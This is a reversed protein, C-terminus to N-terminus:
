AALLRELAEPEDLSAVEVGPAIARVLGALVRGPGVEVFRSVGAAVMAEVSEVWRVPSDLQEVLLEVVRAADSNPAAEVNSPVRLPGIPLGALVERMPPKVRAMLSCHFPASVPLPLVRRAGAATLLPRAREIAELHGAIVTQDPSNFNAPTCVQGQAADACLEAVKGPALRLVAAMTGLGAPVAQQMLEGRRQVARVADCFRLAGAAVLASYEGLSHGAMLDPRQERSALAAHMALSVTLIAPQTNRTLRLQAEPGDLILRTLPEGLAADAQAFLERAASSREFLARGMGVYQSGQGPFVYALKGM